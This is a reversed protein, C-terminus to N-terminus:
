MCPKTSRVLATSLSAAAATRLCIDDMGADSTPSKM